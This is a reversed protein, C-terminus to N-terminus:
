TTRSKKKNSKRISWQVKLFYYVCLFLATGNTNANRPTQRLRGVSYSFARAMLCSCKATDKGTNM